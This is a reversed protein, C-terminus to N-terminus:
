CGSGSKWFSIAKLILSNPLSGLKWERLYNVIESNDIIGDQCVPSVTTGCPATFDYQSGYTGLGAGNNSLINGCIKTQPVAQIKFSGYQNDHINNNYAQNNQGFQYGNYFDGGFRIGAGINGFIDNNRFINGDGRSDLGGSAPDKQGSISNYEVINGSSGEKIDVGENGQTNMLNHHIYNNNSNDLDLTPNRYLQEPATGIYVGEGNKAGGFKFDYVGCNLITNNAVENKQSFYKIRVCEGGANKLTMNIIKSGIVGDKNGTGVIYILKDGYGTIASPNGHLGDVTFGDLVIYDHNIEFIRSKGAGKVIADSGGKITIPLDFSGNRKSIADQYYIGTALYVTDGPQASDLAKQISFNDAPSAYYNAAYSNSSFSVALIVAFIAIKIM